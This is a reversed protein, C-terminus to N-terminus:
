CAISYYDESKSIYNTLYRKLLSLKSCTKAPQKLYFLLLRVILPVICFNSDVIVKRKQNNQHFSSLRKRLFYSMIRVVIIANVCHFQFLFTSHFQSYSWTKSFEISKYDLSQICNHETTSQIAHTHHKFTCMPFCITGLISVVLWCISLFRKNSIAKMWFADINKRQALFRLVM